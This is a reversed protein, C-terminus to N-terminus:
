PCTVCFCSKNNNNGPTEGAGEAILIDIARNVNGNTQQLARVCASTDTFGMSRLAALQARWKIEPNDAMATMFTGFSEGFTGTQQAPTSSGGLGGLSRELETVLQMFSPDFLRGITAAEGFGGASPTAAAAAAQPAAAVSGAAPASSRFLSAILGQMNPDQLMAAAASPEFNNFAPNSSAWPNPLPKGQIGAQPDAVSGSMVASSSSVGTASAGSSAAADMLPAQIDKYMKALANFGGPVADINSIARDTTRMMERMAAPSRFSDVAQSLFSSDNLMHALEPHQDTLQKIEPNMAIVARLMEPNGLMAQMQPSNLMAEMVDPNKILHQQFGGLGGGLSGGTGPAAQGAGVASQRILHIQSGDSIGYSRLAQEDKLVQGKYVLRQQPISIDARSSLKEKLELVSSDTEVEVSFQSNDTRKIQLVLRQTM